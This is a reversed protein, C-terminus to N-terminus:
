PLQNGPLELINDWDVAAVWMGEESSYTVTGEAELEFSRLIM